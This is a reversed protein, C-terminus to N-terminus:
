AADEIPMPEGPGGPGGGMIVPEVYVMIASTGDQNHVTFGTRIKLEVEVGCYTIKM